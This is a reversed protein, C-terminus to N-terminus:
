PPRASDKSHRELLQESILSFHSASCRVRRMDCDSGRSPSGTRGSLGSLAYGEKTPALRFGWGRDARSGALSKLPDPPLTWLPRLARQHPSPPIGLGQGSQKGGPIQTPGAPSDLSPAAGKPPPKSTGWGKDARSGALTKLPDPPLTWLPRLGRQHPSPPIGLGQGSQKGGPIQTPGAPSDLSPAARKSPPKPPVGWVGM